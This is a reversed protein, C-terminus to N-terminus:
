TTANNVNVLHFSHSCSNEKHENAHFLFMVVALFQSFSNEYDHSLKFEDPAFTIPAHQPTISAGQPWGRPFGLPPTARVLEVTKGRQGLARSICTAHGHPPTCGTMSGEDTAVSPIWPSSIRDLTLSLPCQSVSDDRFPVRLMARDTYSVSLFCVGCNSGCLM